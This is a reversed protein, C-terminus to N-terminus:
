KNVSIFIDNWQLYNFCLWLLTTQDEQSRIHRDRLRILQKGDFCPLLAVTQENLVSCLLDRLENKFWRGIPVGFGRKARVFLQPDINKSLIDRLVRKQGIQKDYCYEIPLLRSYEFVRYDLMPTRAELSASMSARDLKVNYAHCMLTRIDFDNFARRIDKNEYLYSTQEISQQIEQANFLEAKNSPRRNMYLEQVNNLLLSMALRDKGFSRAGAAMMARLPRPLNYVWSREAYRLYRPYGFFVEDGGDGGLAVRVFQGAKRCLLSTPIASADGMPEDYYQQLNNIVGIAEQSSCIIHNFKIGISQAVRGAYYSEDFEAENFGVSYAEINENRQHALMAITSSDIGGSLFVGVPVDANLRLSVSDALLTEVETLAEDYTKPAQFGCTNDYLDWYTEIHLSKNSLSYIFREAPNLKRIQKVISFPSPIYQMSFYCKQAFEDIEYNNGICLPLLQSAFEFYDDDIHYYFPKAGLRDVAGFLLQNQKDYIVFAFDGNIYNVCDKGFREYLACLVETDSSTLFIKDAFFQKKLQVFNYIEGNMVAVVRGEAYEFPQHARKDLDIVALRNHALCLQGATTTYYRIGTFDPGRFAFQRMKREVIENGYNKTSGFIGCM